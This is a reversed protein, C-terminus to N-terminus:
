VVAGAELIVYVLKTVVVSGAEDYVIVLVRGPCVLVYIVYTTSRKKYKVNM